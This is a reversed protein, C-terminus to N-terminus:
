GRNVNQITIGNDEVSKMKNIKIVSFVIVVTLIALVVIITILTVVVERDFKPKEPCDLVTGSQLYKKM